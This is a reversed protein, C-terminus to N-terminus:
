AAEKMAKIRAIVEDAALYDDFSKGGINWTIPSYDDNFDRAYHWDYLAFYGFDDEGDEWRVCFETTIKDGKGEFAPEGLVEKLDAFSAQLTGRLSGGTLYDTEDMNELRITM